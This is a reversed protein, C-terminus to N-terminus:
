APVEDIIHNVERYHWTNQYKLEYGVRIDSNGNERIWQFDFVVKDLSPHHVVNSIRLIGLRIDSIDQWDGPHITSTCTYEEEDDASM